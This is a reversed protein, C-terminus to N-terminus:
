LPPRKIREAFSIVIHLVRYVKGLFYAGVLHIRTIHCFCQLQTRTVRHFIRTYGPLFFSVSFTDLHGPILVTLILFLNNETIRAVHYKAALGVQYILLPLAVFM